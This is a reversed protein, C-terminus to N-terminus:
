SDYDDYKCGNVIISCKSHALYSARHKLHKESVASWAVQPARTYPRLKIESLNCHPSFTCRLISPVRPQHLHTLFM